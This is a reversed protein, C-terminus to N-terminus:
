FFFKRWSSDIWWSVIWLHLSTFSITSGSCHKESKSRRYYVLLLLQGLADLSLSSSCHRLHIANAFCVLAVFQCFVVPHRPQSACLTFFSFILLLMYFGKSSKSTMEIGDHLFPRRVLQQSSKGSQIQRGPFEFEQKKAEQACRSMQQQRGLSSRCSVDDPLTFITRSWGSELSRESRAWICQLLQQAPMTGVQQASMEFIGCRKNPQTRGRARSAEVCRSCNTGRAGFHCLGGSNQRYRRGWCHWVAVVVM